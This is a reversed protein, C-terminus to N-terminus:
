IVPVPTPPFTSINVFPYWSGTILHILEPFRISQMTVIPLLINNYVQFSSLSYIKFTVVTFNFFPLYQITHIHFDSPRTWSETVGHVTAQWAGRGMPNELCSYHMPQWQRRWPIKRVWADFRPEWMAPLNKVTQAVLPM